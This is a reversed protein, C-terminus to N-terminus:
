FKRIGYLMRSAWAVDFSGCGHLGVKQLEDKLRDVIQERLIEAEEVGHALVEEPDKAVMRTTQYPTFDASEAALPM